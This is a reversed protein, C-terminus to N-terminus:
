ERDLYEHGTRFGFKGKVKGKEKQIVNSQEPFAFQSTSPHSDVVLSQSDSLFFEKSFYFKINYNQTFYTVRL